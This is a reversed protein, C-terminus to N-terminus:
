PGLHFSVNATKDRTSDLTPGLAGHRKGSVQRKLYSAKDVYTELARGYRLYQKPVQKRANEGLLQNRHVFSRAEKFEPFRHEYELTQTFNKFGSVEQLSSYAVGAISQASAFLDRFEAEPLLQSQAKLQGLLDGFTKVPIGGITSEAPLPTQAFASNSGLKTCALQMATTQATTGTSMPQNDGM